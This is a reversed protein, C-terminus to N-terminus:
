PVFFCFCIFFLIVSSLVLIPLSFLQPNSCGPQVIRLPLVMYASSLRIKNASSVHHKLQRLLDSILIETGSESELEWVKTVNVFVNLSTIRVKYSTPFLVTPPPFLGSHRQPRNKATEHVNNYRCASIKHNLWFKPCHFCQTRETMTFSLLPM